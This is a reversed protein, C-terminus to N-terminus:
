NTPWSALAPVSINAGPNTYNTNGPLLLVVIPDVNTDNLQTTFGIMSETQFGNVTFMYNFSDKWTTLNVNTPQQVLLTLTQGNQTLVAMNNNVIQVNAATLLSWSVTTGQKIASVEDRVVVYNQNIIAIGRLWKSLDANYVPGANEIVNMFATNASSSSFSAFGNVNQLKNNVTLTNNITNNYQPIATWRSSGQSYDWLNIGAALIPTYNTGGMYMAWRQGNADMIFSGIDM